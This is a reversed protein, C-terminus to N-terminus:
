NFSKLDDAPRLKFVQKYDQVQEDLFIIPRDTDLYDASHSRLLNKRLITAKCFKSPPPPNSADVNIKRMFLFSRQSMTYDDDATMDKARQIPMSASPETDPREM